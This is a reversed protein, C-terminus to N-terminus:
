QNHGTVKKIAPYKAALAKVLDILSAKQAATRTDKPTKGDAAVGGVYVIGLTHANHGAVHSGVQTEPRGPHVSGDRYVVYHYGIDKWGQGLHWSRITDVSYDKGEPTATCHVIIEDITRTAKLQGLIVASAISAAHPSQPPAAGGRASVLADLAADIAAWTEAGPSGDAGYKPLAFGLAILRRQVDRVTTM